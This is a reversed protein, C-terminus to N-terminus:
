RKPANSEKNCCQACRKLMKLNYSPLRCLLESIESLNVFIIYTKNNISIIIINEHELIQNCGMTNPM